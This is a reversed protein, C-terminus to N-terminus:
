KSDLVVSVRDILVIEVFSNALDRFGLLQLALKLVLLQLRRSPIGNWVLISLHLLPFTCPLRLIISTSPSLAALYDTYSQVIYDPCVAISQSLGILLFTCPTRSFCSLKKRSGCDHKVLTLNM